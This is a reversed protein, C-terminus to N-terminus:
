VLHEEARRLWRQGSRNGSDTGANPLGLRRAMEPGTLAEGAARAAALIEIAKERNRHAKAPRSAPAQRKRKPAEPKAEVEPVVVPEPERKLVLWMLHWVLAMSLAPAAAVPGAWLWDSLAAAHLWQGALSMASGVGVVGWAFGLAPGNLALTAAYAAAVMGDIALPYLWSRFDHMGALRALDVLGVYLLIFTAVSVVAASVRVANRVTM